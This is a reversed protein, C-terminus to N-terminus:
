FFPLHVIGRGSAKFESQRMKKLIIWRRQSKGTVDLGPEPLSVGSLVVHILTWLALPACTAWTLPEPLSDLIAETNEYCTGKM